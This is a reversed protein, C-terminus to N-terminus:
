AEGDLRRYMPTLECHRTNDGCLEHDHDHPICWAGVEVFAALEAKLEVIRDAAEVTVDWTPDEKDSFFAGQNLDHHMARLRTILDNSM